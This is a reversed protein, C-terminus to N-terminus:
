DEGFEEAMVNRLIRALSVPSSTGSTTGRGQDIPVGRSRPPPQEIRDACPIGRSLSASVLDFFLRHLTSLKEERDDHSSFQECTEGITGLAYEECSEKIWLDLEKKMRKFNKKVVWEEFTLGSDEDYYERDQDKM